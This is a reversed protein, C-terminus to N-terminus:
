VFLGQGIFEGQRAGRPLAFLGGGVHTVFQNMIDFKSMKDFIKIFGTRPDRQYCLFLLGADYEMGERWPPWREATVNVGNNYSYARRLIQAGDNNVAAALRMHSNEAIVSNGDADTANFDAIDFEKKGGLPAGSLKQRGFVQEQFPVKMKDWHELAIRIRRAVLYTGGQMWDPAERGAWVVKDYDPRAPNVTGDKFGMLNRPTGGDPPSSAFGAQTWRIQATYDALRALQRVAHFAVQPDDACAQVSMDGGTHEPVLQDGSFAPMDVLAEPRRSALGYRDKGDKVFFTPGFGINITLRSPPLGLADGSDHTDAANEPAIADAPMGKAMRASSETWKKLLAIVDDRKDTVLDFAAFYTHSQPPTAIGGQHAAGQQAAYFPEAKGHGGSVADAVATAGIGAGLGAGGAAAAIGLASLFGRRSFHFPCGSM